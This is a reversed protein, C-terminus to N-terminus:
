KLVNVHGTVPKLGSENLNLIYYYASIDVPNGNRTGDWPFHIPDSTKYVLEGWQNFVELDANPFYEINKILLFDHKGDGNPSIVNPVSVVANVVVIVHASNDCGPVSLNRVTLTYINEKADPLTKTILSNPTSISSANNATWTYSFGTAPADTTGTLTITQFLNLPPVYAIQVSPKQVVTVTSTLLAIGAPPPCSSHPQVTVTTTTKVEVVGNSNDTAINAKANPTITWTGYSDANPNIVGFPVDQGECITQDPTFTEQVYQKKVTVVATNSKVTNCGAPLSASSAQVYYSGADTLAVPTIKLSAQDAGSITSSNALNTGPTKVWQYTFPAAAAPTVTVSFNLTGNECLPPADQLVTISLGQNVVQNIPEIASACGNLTAVVNYTITATLVSTNTLLDTISNGCGATCPKGGLPLPDTISWTYAIAPDVPTSALTIATSAGSCIPTTTQPTVVPVPNIILLGTSSTVSCLGNSPTIVCYYYKGSIATTASRLIQLTATNTGLYPTPAANVSDALATGGANTNTSSVYWQYTVTGSSITNTVAINGKNGQCLTLSQPQATIVPLPNITLLVPNTAGPCLGNAPTIVCFYSKGSIGSKAASKLINLTAKTVGSYPTPSGSLSDSLATASGTIADVAYWQYTVSGAATVSFSGSGGECYTLPQPVASVSPGQNITLLATSTTVPCLGNSPTIVCYYYDGSINSTDSSRLFQLSDTKVGLYPTHATSISDVVATGASNQNATNVYWQYNLKLTGPSISAQVFAFGTDGACFTVPSPQTAIVPVPNITYVLKAKPSECGNVTTTAYLTDKIAKVTSITPQTAGTTATTALSDAYWSLNTSPTVVFTPSASGVCVSLAPATPAAPLAKVEFNLQARASECTGSTATVYLSGTTATATSIVPQTSGLSVTTVNDAYWNLNTSPTVVFSPSAAGVCVSIAPATPAPLTTNVAYDLKARPSECSNATTTVYLSGTSATATSITPQTSGTSTTAPLNDAYWSLGSNPTVVFTPSATGVCVSIAPATPAAPLAKITYDLESRLSECGNTTTTVYLSGTTATVTSITPQTAGTTTTAPLNDAYWSLGSNPTVVFVPSTAGQCVSLAPATPATPVAKITYDLKSRPSECSNTTTTVYLSGTTATATSITPQTAGTTTTAPLNDAYWSLGTNPMVAFVPSAAGQCVSLAPATPATPVAKITYDLKARISECSNTTTTVYLSGTTVTATSITPQTAGTTTTAPLNDAYWSLGTNPTVVFAPSAAGQCVSLAPATPATPVAKITYDLKARTSECTGSTATVYLSGTTASATSITPQTSGLSVTTVNDAYWSLGTSPTVAFTPSAAGVCVSLPAATPAPLSSNVTYDLKARPSECGNTTTTVYLSGSSATATSITSQTAGTTTTAPLNDAYWSLGSNPTVVFAPSATGVCVSIAPATPAAPVAKITYDLKGRPSECGNVTTTVYLSGTSANTTSITPQTAGTTITAPLNDAYWSLGTNPTVAFVPSAAGQCVSLSPATPAAPIANINVVIAARPGECTSATNQQSVYYTTSGVTTTSPVIATTSATGGTANTGYWELVDGSLATAVLATATANQCYNVPSTVVPAVPIANINVVIAARPGECASATNQQSVYYTTSGVTTTSPVIATTSATGGTANTGYWELVDGSLATAVLATATANQCYNVPSTVVPAVPIANINVVIAARPGECTSATNQQSVYYTTSGVTTTSPVIVTTSATGGTANTGYWELVDGSLATAVLATATANQCYNVPSTVVPAVPIANINVVIAARPGECTSATNKQSVYYTTSGVTTTSPVIATTGATGGTANTGYWELVDGSLATAVLATATANQCYNVPSTVVPAVPIANINVVIAARPGECTSATNQQSVYYTTSGVTTTSPVIATTSATGGTANTGYWELVDGSLATAVLATATANQCYNVPSTVVPAVPIANINVVIAARPGECTSATNQQSVYYTTSGVTTTSPVIATTSATGGTANTGYWELVDGSLATAVLATATANQCYNVPSTVVPAVPIANVTLLIANSATPCTPYNADTVIVYYYKGSIAASPANFTLTATTVGQYPATNTLATGGTTSNTSNVYWQYSLTGSGTAAVTTTNGTTAGACVTVNAPQTNITPPTCACTVNKSGITQCITTTVINWNNLPGILTNNKDGKVVVVSSTADSLPQASANNAALSNFTGYGTILIQYNTGVPIGWDLTITQTAAATMTYTTKYPGSIAVGANNALQLTITKGSFSNTPQINVSKLTFAAVADFSVAATAQSSAGTVGVLPGITTSPTIDKVYITKSHTPSTIVFSAGTGVIAGTSDYYVYNSYDTNPIKGSVGGGTITMTGGSCSFNLTPAVLPLVDVTATVNKTNNCNDTITVQISANGVQTFTHVVSNTGAVYTSNVTTVAGGAETITWVLPSGVTPNGSITMNITVANNVCVQNNTSIGIGNLNISGINSVLSRLLTPLGMAASIEAQGVNYINKIPIFQPVWAATPTPQNPNTIQGIYSNGSLDDLNWTIFNSTYINGDPGLQVHGGFSNGGGGSSGGQPFAGMYNRTVSAYTGGSINCQYVGAGPTASQSVYLYNGNPSFEVGYAWPIDATTSVQFGGSIVGTTNNFDFVWVQSSGGYEVYAIKNYCSNFKIMAQQNTGGGTPGITSTVAAGFNLGGANTQYAKFNNNADHAVLWYNVKDSHPAAALCEDAPGALLNPSAPITVTANASTTATVIVYNVGRGSGPNCSAVPTCQIADALALYYQNTTGPVPMAITGQMSSSNTYPLWAVFGDNGNYLGIKTDDDPDGQTYFLLNGNVDSMSTACENNGYKTSLITTAPNTNQILTPTGGGSFNLGINYGFRWIAGQLQAYAGSSSLSLFLVLLLGRYGFSFKKKTILSNMGMKRLLLEYM